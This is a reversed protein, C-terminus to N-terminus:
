RSHCFSVQEKRGTQISVCHLIQLGIFRPLSVKSSRTLFQQNGLSTLILHQGSKSRYRVSRRSLGVLRQKFYGGDYEEHSLVQALCDVDEQLFGFKETTLICYLANVTQSAKNIFLLMLEVLVTCLISEEHMTREAKIVEHMCSCNNLRDSLRYQADSKM